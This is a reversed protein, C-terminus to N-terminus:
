GKEALLKEMEDMLGNMRQVMAQYPVPSALDVGANKLLEFPSASGGARLVNLYTDRLGPQGALIQQGFYSAAAMSTAYQYVYFPGYFHPIYAWESCYRPDIQMVGQEAGHYKRLLGCYMATMKKGNVAEGRELADHAQLEFEAFMTQRYFTARLRELAHGLQFLREERTKAQKLMHESLLVENTISAVEAVFLSYGATEFPQAENALMTHVGHGWEHAFTSVSSFNDQHNLFVFPVLGYVGTQYAGGSKGEAPKVHMSRVALAQALHRQYDPGLVRTAETTLRGAEEVPYSRNLAVLEPYIDYYHLDPLKLLRQRLKFYRHLTPLSVNAQQVLMRYVSEPVQYGSLSAAVASPHKRLKATVTGARMRTSLTAGFTNEYQGLRTYFTDFVQKRVARDAHQRLLGYGTPNVRQPKGDVTLMPWDIDAEMLLTRAQRSALTVPSLAALAAETDAGLNHAALRLTNRLGVTHKKLGADAAIFAEVKEAGLAAVESAIWARAAGWPGYVAQMLGEREQNRADRNNTSSQTSAYVGLRRLRQEMASVADLATRLAAPGQALTGRYAALKPMDALFAKREAEWAADTPFLVTLDWVHGEPSALGAPTAAVSPRAGGQALAASGALLLLGALRNLRHSTLVM